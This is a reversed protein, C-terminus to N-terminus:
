AANLEVRHRAQTAAACACIAAAEGEGVGSVDFADDGVGDGAADGEEDFGAVAGAAFDAFAATLPRGASGGSFAPATVIGRRSAGGTISPLSSSAAHFFATM